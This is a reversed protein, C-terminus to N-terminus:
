TRQLGGGLQELFADVQDGDEMGLGAPTDDKGVRNGDYTFKFTGPEKGFRKEAAEFIKGFKMNSKVKVTVSSGDYSINLNLKPKVDEPEQSM